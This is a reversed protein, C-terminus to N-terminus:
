GRLYWSSKTARATTAQGGALSAGDREVISSTGDDEVKDSKIETGAESRATGGGEVGRRRLQGQQSVQRRAFLQRQVWGGVVRVYGDIVYATSGIFRIFSMIAVAILIVVLDALPCGDTVTCM